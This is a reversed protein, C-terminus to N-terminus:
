IRSKSDAASTTFNDNCGVHPPKTAVIVFHERVDVRTDKGRKNLVLTQKFPDSDSIQLVVKTEAFSKEAASAQLSFTCLGLALLVAVVRRAIPKM